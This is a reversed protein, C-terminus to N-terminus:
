VGQNLSKKSQWIKWHPREIYLASDPAVPGDPYSCIYELPDFKEQLCGSAKSQLSSIEKTGSRTSLPVRTEAVDSESSITYDDSCLELDFASFCIKLTKQDVGANLSWLPSLTKTSIPIRDSLQELTFNNGNNKVMELASIAAQLRQLGRSTLFVGRRRTAHQKM